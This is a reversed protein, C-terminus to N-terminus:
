KLQRHVLALGGTAATFGAIFLAVLQGEPDDGWTPNKWYTGWFVLAGLAAGVTLGVISGLWKNKGSLGFTLSDTLLAIAAFGVISAVLVLAAVWWPWKKTVVIPYTFDALGPGFVEIAGTFTGATFDSVGGICADVVVDRGSESPHAAVALTADLRGSSSRPKDFFDASVTDNGSSPRRGNKPVFNIDEEGESDDALDLQLTSRAPNGDLELLGTANEPAARATEQEQCPPTATAGLASTTLCPALGSVMVVAISPRIISALM